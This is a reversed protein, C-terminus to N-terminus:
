HQEQAKHQTKGVMLTVSSNWQAKIFWWQQEQAKNPMPWDYTNCKFRIPGQDIILTVRPGKWDYTNCKLRILGQDIM